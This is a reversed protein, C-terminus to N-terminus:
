KLTARVLSRQGRSFPLRYTSVDIELRYDHWSVIQSNTKRGGLVRIEDIPFTGKMALAMGNRPLFPLALRLFQDLASFARSVVVDFVTDHTPSQSLNEARIHYAEIDRLELVRVVHKIFSIKKASADILTMKLDPLVIKLPIGPFGAGAGMDLIKVTPNLYPAVALSDVIHKEAIEEPKTISTLNIKRNWILLEEVFRTLRQMNQHDLEVGFSLAGQQLLTHWQNSGIIM